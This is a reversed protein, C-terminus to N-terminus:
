LRQARKVELYANVAELGADGPSTEVVLAGRRRLRRVMQQRGHWLDRAVLTRCLEEKSAPQLRAVAELEPDTFLVVLPLHQPTLVEVARLLEGQEEREPLATLVLVLTRHRLRRRLHAALATYDTHVVEPALGTAYATLRRLQSRGRGQAIGQEAEAAFSLLGIRDEMRNAIYGLLLAADIAHDLRTVRAVRAAMRHGRDLCVLIDQSRDLRFEQVILKRHRASAKWAVDRADDGVVYDRLRDFERGKGLKASARSGLGRLAFRNLKRHLRAVAKLNPLVQVEGELPLAVRREVLGWVALAAHPAPLPAGGRVVGRVPFRFRALEGPRVRRREESAAPDLLPPWVQRVLVALPRRAHVAVTLEVEEPEDLPLAIRASREATVRARALIAAEAATMFLLAGLGAALLWVAEPLWAVVVAALALLLLVHSAREGPRM